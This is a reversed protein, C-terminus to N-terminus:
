EKKMEYVLNGCDWIRFWGNEKMNDVESKNKDYRELKGSLVQKRFGYRHFREMDRPIFYWYNPESIRIKSFGIKSYVTDDLSSWRVDAFTKVGTWNYNAKFYSLVKSFGGVVVKDIDSAYRILEHSIDKDNNGGVSERVSSFTMVSVLDNGSYLGLKISSKDKGQIHNKELFIDKTKSSIEKVVCNKAYVKAGQNLGLIHKIKSKVIDKRSLWEDEFIHILRVGAKNSEVTKNIHYKKDKYDDSHWYLGDFEFAIKKGPVYVDLEKGNLVTTDNSIVDGAYISSIYSHLEKELESTGNNACVPCRRGFLFKNPSVPYETGCEVHRHTIKDFAGTYEGLVSYDDGVLKKVEEKYEEDTKKVSNDVVYKKMKNSKIKAACSPCGYSSSLISDPRVEWEHGCSRHKVLVKTKNNTYESLLEFEGKRRLDLDERFTETTKKLKGSCVPCSKRSLLSNPRTKWEYGCSHKHLLSDNGSTYAELLQFNPLEKGLIGIYEEHTRKM